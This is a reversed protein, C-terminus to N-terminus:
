KYALIKCFCIDLRVKHKRATQAVPGSRTSMPRRGTELYEGKSFGLKRIFEMYGIGFTPYQAKLHERM